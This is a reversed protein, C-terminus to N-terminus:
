TVMREGELLSIHDLYQVVLYLLSPKNPRLRGTGFCAPDWGSDEHGNSSVFCVPPRGFGCDSRTLGYTPASKLGREGLFTKTDPEGVRQKRTIVHARRGIGQKTHGRHRICM